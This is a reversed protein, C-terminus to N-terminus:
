GGERTTMREVRRNVWRDMMGAIQGNTWRSMWRDYMWGDMCNGTWGEVEEGVWRHVSGM